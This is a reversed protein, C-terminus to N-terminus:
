ASAPEARDLGEARWRRQVVREVYFMLVPVLGARVRVGSLGVLPSRLVLRGDRRRGVPALHGVLESYVEFPDARALFTDGFMAAGALM